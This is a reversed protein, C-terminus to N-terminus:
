SSSESPISHTSSKAKGVPRWETDPVILRHPTLYPLLHRISVYDWTEHSPCQTHIHTLLFLLLWTHFSDPGLYLLLPDAELKLPVGFSEDLDVEGPFYIHLSYNPTQIQVWLCCLKIIEWGIIKALWKFIRNINSYEKQIGQKRKKWGLIMPALEVKWSPTWPNVGLLELPGQQLNSMTAPSQLQFEWIWPM